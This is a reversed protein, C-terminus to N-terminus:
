TAWETPGMPSGPCPILMEQRWDDRLTRAHERWAVIRDDAQADSAHFGRAADTARALEIHADLSTAWLTCTESEGLLVEWVGILRHGHDEMVPAWEERVAALYELAAGPRVRTLEHVFLEGRIDNSRIHELSLTGPAAGLLRDFGGSRWREAQSWWESLKPNAERRLNTRACLRRWGEWGDVLEWINVVQPWRGTSGQVTWTGYLSLGRDAVAEADFGVVSKEMYPVAGQGVIDITEHLYLDREMGRRYAVPFLSCSPLVVVM